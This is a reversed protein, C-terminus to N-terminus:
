RRPNPSPEVRSERRFFWEPAASFTTAVRNSECPRAVIPRVFYSRNRPMLQSLIRMSPELCLAGLPPSGGPRRGYITGLATRGNVQCGVFVCHRQAGGYSAGGRVIALLGFFNKSRHDTLRRLRLRNDFAGIRTIKCGGLGVAGIAISGRLLTRVVRAEPHTRRFASLGLGTNTGNTTGDFAAM